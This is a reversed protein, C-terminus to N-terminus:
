PGWMGLMYCWMAGLSPGGHRVGCQGEWVQSICRMSCWVVGLICLRVGCQRKHRYWMGSQSICFVVDDRFIPTNRDLFDSALEVMVPLETLEEM